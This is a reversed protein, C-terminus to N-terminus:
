KRRTANRYPQDLFILTDRDRLIHHEYLRKEVFYILMGGDRAEWLGGTQFEGERYLRVSGDADLQRSWRVGDHWYDWEGICDELEAKGVLGGEEALLIGRADSARGLDSDAPCWAKVHLTWNGIRFQDLSVPLHFTNKSTLPFIGTRGLHSDRAIVEGDLRLELDELNVADRGRMWKFVFSYNGAKRLLSSVDFSLEAKEGVPVPPLKWALERPPLERTYLTRDLPISELEGRDGASRRVAHNRFLRASREGKGPFVEVEGRFVAVEPSESDRPLRVGFQTGHDVLRDGAYEIAFGEAGSPVEAVLNGFRLAGSNSGTVQYEAPGELIVSVGNAYTLEVFGAEFAVEDGPLISGNPLGALESGDRWIVGVGGTVRVPGELSVLNEVPDQKPGNLSLLIAVAAAIASGALVWLIPRSRGIKKVPALREVEPAAEGLLSEQASIELYYQRAEPEEELREELRAFDSRSLRDAFLDDVLRRLEKDPNPPQNTPKM